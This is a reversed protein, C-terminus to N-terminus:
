QYLVESPGVGWERMDVGGPYVQVQTFRQHRVLRSTFVFLFTCPQEEHIIRDMRHYLANRKAPDFEVRAAEILQDVEPNAFGIYNSGEAQQSSHWIQHPDSEYDGTWGGFVADFQHDHTTQLFVTWEMQRVEVIIGVKRLDERIISSLSDVTRSPGPYLFTFRFPEGNKDRIGDGDHDTWGAEELLQLAREPDYPWPALSPDHQPGHDYFTGAAVHGSGFFLKRILEERPILMTLAQRIRRDAFLPRRLNWGIYSYGASYPEYETKTFRRRFAASNTQKAWQIARVGSVDIEGKKLAQFAVWQDNIIKYVVGQLAMPTGWYDPFREVRIQRATKWEVFRMPGTGIPARNAAHKRFEEGNDFVHRPVIPMFAITELAFVYPRELNFRITFDDLLEAGTIGSKQFYSSLHAAGVKPDNIREFSYLVDRATFPQHDHWQVGHRLYFTYHLHDPSEEWREALLPELNFNANTRRLLTETVFENAVNQTADTAVIPNLSQPDSPLYYVVVSPDREVRYHCGGLSPLLWLALTFWVCRGLCKM